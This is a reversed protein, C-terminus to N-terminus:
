GAARSSVSSSPSRRRASPRRTLTLTLTLALTLTLTLALTLTAQAYYTQADEFQGLFHHASGINSTITAILDAAPEAGNADPVRLARTWLFM